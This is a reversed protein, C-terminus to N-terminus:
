TEIVSKHLRTRTYTGKFPFALDVFLSFKAGAPFPVACRLLYAAFNQM